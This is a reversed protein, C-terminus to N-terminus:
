HKEWQQGGKKYKKRLKDREPKTQELRYANELYERGEKTKKCTGIFIDRRLILYDVIDLELVENVYNTLKINLKDVERSVNKLNNQIIGATKSVLIGDYDETESLDGIINAAESSLQQSSNNLKGSISQLQGKSKIEVIM